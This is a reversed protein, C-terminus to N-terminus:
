IKLFISYICFQICEFSVEFKFNIKLHLLHHNANRYRLNLDRNQSIYHFIFRPHFKKKSTTMDLTTSERTLRHSIVTNTKCELMVVLSCRFFFIHYDIERFFLLCLFCLFSSMIFDVLIIFFNLFILSHIM